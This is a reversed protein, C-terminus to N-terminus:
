YFVRLHENGLFKRQIILYSLRPDGLNSINEIINWSYNEIYKLFTSKNSYVLNSKKVIEFEIDDIDENMELYRHFQISDFLFKGDDLINKILSFEFVLIRGCLSFYRYYIDGIRIEREM